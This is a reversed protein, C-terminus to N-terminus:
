SADLLRQYDDSLPKAPCSGPGSIKKETGRKLHWRNYKAEETKARYICTDNFITFDAERITDATGYVQRIVVAGDYTQQTQQRLSTEPNPDKAYFVLSLMVIAPPGFLLWWLPRGSDTTETETSM